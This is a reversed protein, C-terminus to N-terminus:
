PAPTALLGLALLGYFTYECDPTPDAIHGGYGGSAHRLRDVFGLCAERVGDFPRGMIRLAYLAMATSLLDQQAADPAARFGGARACQGLLWEGVRQNVPEDCVVHLIAAAATAPTSSLPAGVENVFSCGDSSRLRELSRVMARASPVRANLSEYALYAVYCAFASANLEGRKMSYGGDPSRYAEVHQLLREGADASAALSPLRARCRALCTLHAFDLSRGDGHVRLGSAIRGEPLKAGLALLSDMGFATYCLDSNGTRGRFGGDDNLNGLLFEVTRNRAEETLTKGALALVGQLDQALNSPVTPRRRGDPDMGSNM